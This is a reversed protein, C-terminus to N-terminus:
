KKEPLETEGLNLQPLLEKLKSLKAELEKKQKPDKCKAIRSALEAIRVDPSDGPDNLEALSAKAESLAKALQKAEKSEKGSKKSVEALKKELVKVEAAYAALPDATLLDAAPDDDVFDILNALNEKKRALVQQARKVQKNDEGNKKVLSALRKELKKIEDAYAALPDTEGAELQPDEVIETAAALNAKQEALTKAARKAQKSDAGHKKTLEAVKKEQAKIEAAYAALPDSLDDLDEELETALAEFQKTLKAAGDDTKKPEDQGMVSSNLLLFSMVACPIFRLTKMVLEKILYSTKSVLPYDGAYYCVKKERELVWRIRWPNRCFM